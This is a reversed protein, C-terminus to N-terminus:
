GCLAAPREESKSIAHRPLQVHFVTGRGAQSEVEIRGGHRQVIGYVVSQGLGV